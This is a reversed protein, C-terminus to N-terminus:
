IDNTGGLYLPITGIQPSRSEFELSPYHSRARLRNPRAPLLVGGSAECLLIKGGLRHVRTNVTTILIALFPTIATNLYGM